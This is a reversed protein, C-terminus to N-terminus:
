RQVSKQGRSPLTERSCEHIQCVPLLNPASTSSSQYSTSMEFSSSSPQSPWLAHQRACRSGSRNIQLKTKKPAVKTRLTPCRFMGSDDRQMTLAGILALAPSSSLAPEAGRARPNGRRGRHDHAPREHALTPEAHLDDDPRIGRSGDDVARHELRRDGTGADM